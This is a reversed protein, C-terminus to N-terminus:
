EGPFIFNVASPLVEIDFESSAVIEGDLALYILENSKLEARSARCYKMKKLCFPDTLHSGETYKKLILFFRLLSMCKVLCVDMLGDDTVAYPSCHFQGGCWQGNGFTTLLMWKRNFPKGDVTVKIKNFRAGFLSRIVGKMYAKRGDMGKAIYTNGEYTAMADFGVNIMNLAYNDGARIIDLKRHNGDLIKGFSTFDLGPFSKCFDNTAGFALFAISKGTYGVVGSAVEHLIGSGGCAVFCVEDKEHLDCYLRIFRIADGPGKTVYFKYDISTDALQRELEPQIRKLHDQRGNIVFFYLM